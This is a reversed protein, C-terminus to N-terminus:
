PHFHQRLLKTASTKVGWHKSRSKGLGSKSNWSSSLDFMGKGGPRNSSFIMFEKDFKAPAAIIPRYEAYKTNITQGFNVPASFVGDHLRVRCVVSRWLAFLTLSKEGKPLDDHRM